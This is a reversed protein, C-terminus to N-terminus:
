RNLSQDLMLAISPGENFCKASSSGSGARCTPQCISIYLPSHFVDLAVRNGRLQLDRIQADGHDGARRHIHRQDADVGILPDGAEAFDAVAATLIIRQHQFGANESLIWAIHVLEKSPDFLEAPVRALGAS